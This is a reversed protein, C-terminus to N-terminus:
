LAAQVGGRVGRIGAGPPHLWPHLYNGFARCYIKVCCPSKVRLCPELPMASTSGQRSLTHDPKTSNAKWSKAKMKAAMVM